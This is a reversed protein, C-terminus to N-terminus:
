RHRDLVHELYAKEADIDSPILGSIKEVAPHIGSGSGAQLARLYRDVLESVTLGHERAFHKAFELDEEPIRVTLRATAM